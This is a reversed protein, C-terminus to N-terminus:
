GCVRHITNATPAPSVLRSPRRQSHELPEGVLRPPDHGHGLFLGPREVVAVDAGLVDQEGEDVLAASYRGLRQLREPGGLLGRALPNLPDGAPALTTRPASADRERWQGLLHQFQRQPLGDRDATGADSGLVDQEAQEAQALAGGLLYQGAQPNVRAPDTLLRDPQHGGALAVLLRSGPASGTA